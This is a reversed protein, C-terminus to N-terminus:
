LFERSLARQGAHDSTGLVSLSLVGGSAPERGSWLLTHPHVMSFLQVGGGMTMEDQPWLM